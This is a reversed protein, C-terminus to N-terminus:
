VINLVAYQLKKMFEPDNNFPKIDSCMPFKTFLEEATNVSKMVAEFTAKALFMNTQSTGCCWDYEVFDEGLYGARFRVGFLVQYFGYEINGFKWRQYYNENPELIEITGEM